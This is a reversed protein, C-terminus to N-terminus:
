KSTAVEKDFKWTEGYDKSTFQITKNIGSVKVPLLGKAGNFIPSLPTANYNSYGAPLKIYVKKWTAGSDTTRYITPDKETEYRFSILGIKDTAFGAGTVVRAYVKNTNGIENWTIGGDSTEYINNEQHGMAVSSTSVVFGQLKSTFGVFESGYEYDSATNPVKYTYWAKGENDTTTVKISNDAGSYVFATKEPTIYYSGDNLAAKKGNALNTLEGKNLLDEIPVPVDVWNVGNDYTVSIRNVRIAYKNPSTLSLETDTSSKSSAKTTDKVLKLGDTKVHVGQDVVIYKDATSKKIRMTWKCQVTETGSADTASLDYYIDAVFEKSAGAIIKTATINYSSKLNEKGPENLLENMHKEFLPNTIAALDASSKEKTYFFAFFVTIIIAAILLVSIAITLNRKKHDM